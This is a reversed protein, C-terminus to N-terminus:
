CSSMPAMPPWEVAIARGIGRAGGTVVAIKDTLVTGRGPRIPGASQQDAPEQVPQGNLERPATDSRNQAAASTAALTVAAAAGKLVNRRVSDYKSNHKAM